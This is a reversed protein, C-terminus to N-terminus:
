NCLKQFMSRIQGNKVGSYRVNDFFRDLNKELKKEFKEHNELQPTIKLMTAEKKAINPVGDM